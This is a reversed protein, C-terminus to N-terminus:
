KISLTVNPYPKLLVHILFYIPLKESWNLITVRVVEFIFSIIIKFYSLDLSFQQLKYIM